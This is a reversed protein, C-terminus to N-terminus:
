RQTRSDITCVTHIGGRVNYDTTLVLYAPDELHRMLDEYMIATIDEQAAGINRWSILYYKLSKLELIWSGPVYEIRVTGYDPLGSFPCLASFEGPATEYVVVQRATHEYPLRHIEQRRTEPPLFLGFRGEPRIGHRAMHELSRRTYELAQAQLAELAEQLAHDTTGM